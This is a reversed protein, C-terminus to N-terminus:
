GADPWLLRRSRIRGEHRPAHLQPGLFRVGAEAFVLLRLNRGSDWHAPSGAEERRQFFDGRRAAWSTRGLAGSSVDTTFIDAHDLCRNRPSGRLIFLFATVAM